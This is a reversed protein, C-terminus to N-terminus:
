VLFNSAAYKLVPLLRQSDASLNKGTSKPPEDDDGTAAPVWHSILITIKAPPGRDDSLSNAQWLSPLLDVPGVLTLRHLKHTFVFRYSIVRSLVRNVSPSEPHAIVGLRQRLRNTFITTVVSQITCAFLIVVNVRFVFVCHFILGKWQHSQVNTRRAPDSIRFVVTSM